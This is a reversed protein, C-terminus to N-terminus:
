EPERPHHDDHPRRGKAPTSGIRPPAYADAALSTPTAPTTKRFRGFDLGAANAFGVGSGHGSRAGM